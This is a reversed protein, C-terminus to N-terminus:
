LRSDASLHQDWAWLGPLLASSCMLADEALAASDLLCLDSSGLERQGPPQQHHPRLLQPPVPAV